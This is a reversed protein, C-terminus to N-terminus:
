IWCFDFCNQGPQSFLCFSFPRWWTVPPSANVRFTSAVEIRCKSDMMKEVKAAVEGQEDIVYVDFLPEIKGERSARARLAAIQEPSVHFTATVTGRGPKLFQISVAKDWVIYDCGMHELLILMFCPKSITM